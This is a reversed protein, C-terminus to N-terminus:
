EKEALLVEEDSIELFTTIAGSGFCKPCESKDGLRGIGLCCSCRDERVPYAKGRRVEVYASLISQLREIGELDFMDLFESVPAVVYGSPYVKLFWSKVVQKNGFSFPIGTLQSLHYMLFNRDEQILDMVDVIRLVLNKHNKKLFFDILKRKSNIGPIVTM